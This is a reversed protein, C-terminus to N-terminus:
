KRGVGIAYPSARKVLYSVISKTESKRREVAEALGYLAIVCVGLVVFQATATGLNRFTMAHALSLLPQHMLYITFTAGAAWRITREIPKPLSVQHRDIIVAVGALHAAFLAGLLSYYLYLWAWSGLSEVRMLSGSPHFVGYKLVPYLGPAFVAAITVKKNLKEILLPLTKYLQAGLLWLLWYAAIFPGFVLAWCSLLVTAIRRRVFFLIGFAVYYPVEYGLSWYAENSGPISRIGWAENIFLLAAVSTKLDLSGHWFALREYASASISIGIWDCLATLVLAAAAVPYIRIVRALSYDRLSHEKNEVVFRIVFGSLVFFVVVCESAHSSIVKPLSPALIYKAHGLLVGLAALLRLADLYISLTRNM